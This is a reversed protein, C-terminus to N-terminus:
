PAIHLYSRILAGLMKVGEQTGTEGAVTLGGMAMRGMFQTVRTGPGVKQAEAEDAADSEISDRLLDVDQPSLGLATAAALLGELDGPAVGGLQIAGPSDVAVTNGDGYIYTNVITTVAQPNALEVGLEGANPAIREVDLALGLVRTRVQDLVSTLLAPSVIRKASVIGHLPAMQSLEPLKGEVMESNIVGIVNTDWFYSLLGDSEALRELESVSERFEVEFAGADRLGKPFASSPLPVNNLRANWPGSWDSLVKTQFPGRYSPVPADGFYGSLESDVWESLAQTDTRAALVKVHRLLSAISVSEGTAADIIQSLTSVPGMMASPPLRHDHGSNKAGMRSM